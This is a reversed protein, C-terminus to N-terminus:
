VVLIMPTEIDDKVLACVNKRGLKAMLYGHEFVVNQRARKRLSADIETVGKGIDCPTYLVIAFDAQSSYHEIKEIITMGSSVKEHLIIPDLKINEIFRAVEQKASNDHGHVIFVKDRAVKEEHAEKNITNEFGGEELEELCSELLGKAEELGSNYTEEDIPVVVGDFGRYGHYIFSIKKFDAIYDSEEGFIRKLYRIVRKKWKDFEPNPGFRNFSSLNKIDQILKQIKEQNGNSNDIGM